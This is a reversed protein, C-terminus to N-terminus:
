PFGRKRTVTTLYERAGASGLDALLEPAGPFYSASDDIALALDRYLALAYSLNILGNQANFALMKGKPKLGSKQFAWNVLDEIAVQARKEPLISEYSAIAFAAANEPMRDIVVGDRILAVATPM